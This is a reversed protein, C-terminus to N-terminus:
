QREIVRLYTTFFRESPREILNVLKERGLKQDITRAMHAGVIYFLRKGDSLIHLKSWDENTLISDPNNKFHFYIEFFEKILEQLLEVDQLAVYDSHNNMASEQMRIELPALTAMGELHTLYEILEAMERFTTIDLSPMYNKLMVFGAHHLEHIAFFKLENMNELFFPHALNLSANNGYAVGLDYGFTFFLSSSFDFGEPLFQLAIKQPMDTKAIYKKAFDLNRKFRTLTEENIESPLLYTVLELGSSNPVGSNFRRSHNLLHKTAELASIKQLYSSDNTEFFRLALKAFSFDYAVNGKQIIDKNNHTATCQFLTITAAVLFLVFFSSTKKM